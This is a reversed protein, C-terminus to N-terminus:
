DAMGDLGIHLRVELEPTLTGAELHRLEEKLSRGEREVRYLEARLQALALEERLSVNEARIKAAEKVLDFESGGERMRLWHAELATQRTDLAEFERQLRASERTRDQITRRLQTSLRQARADEKKVTRDVNHLSAELASARQVLTAHVQMLRAAAGPSEDNIARLEEEIEVWDHEAKAVSAAAVGAEALKNGQQTFNPSAQSGPKTHM